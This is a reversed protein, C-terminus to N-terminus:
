QRIDRMMKTGRGRGEEVNEDWARTTAGQRGRGRQRVKDMDKGSLKREGNDRGVTRMRTTRM